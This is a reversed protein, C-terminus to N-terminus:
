WEEVSSAAILFSLFIIVPILICLCLVIVAIKKWSCCQRHQVLNGVNRLPAVEQINATVDNCVSREQPRLTTALHYSLQTENRQNRTFDGVHATCIFQMRRPIDIHSVSECETSDLIRSNVPLNLVDAKSLPHWSRCEPCRQDKREQGASDFVSCLVHPCLSATKSM